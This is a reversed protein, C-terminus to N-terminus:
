QPEYLTIELDGKVQSCFQEVLKRVDDFHLGGNNCGLAPMALTHIQQFLITNEALHELGEQIWELKSPNRWDDKTPFNIIYQPPAPEHHWMWVEGVRIRKKKCCRVYEKFMDPFRQKFELAIGAGMVGVCNVTNVIADAPEAFLDGSKVVLTSV